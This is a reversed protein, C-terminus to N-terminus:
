WRAFVLGALEGFIDEPDRRVGRSAFWTCMNVCDRQLYQMGNPNAVVDVVQPLDIMVARGDHVLVNYASLDGHALGMGALGVMMELVQAFLDSLEAPESRNSGNWGRAPRIEALRPAARRGHGVFELLIETGDVQVPYPVPLGCQWLRALTSFEAAAWQGARVQVGYRTRGDIARQDRSRRAQRGDTYAADRHFDRHEPARYRKAALLMGPGDPIAREVLFVDAEKGTKLIGLETDIAADSTILWSPRPEPGHSGKVVSSWTSWRQDPGPDALEVYNLQRNDSGDNHAEHSGIRCDDGENAEHDNFDLDRM